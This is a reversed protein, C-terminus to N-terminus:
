LWGAQRVAQAYTRSVPAEAGSKLKLVLKGDAKSIDALGQRAVWWSRHTQLGDLAGIERIADSLRMLILTEGLSTHVRLYHDEASVAYIEGARFKIPLRDLFSAPPAGPTAASGKKAFARQALLRLAGGAITVVLVFFGLVPADEWPHPRRMLVDEALLVIPLIVAAQAISLVPLYVWVPWKPWRVQIAWGLIEGAVGGWVIMLVWYLAAQAFPVDTVSAFPNLVAMFLGFAAYVAIVRAWAAWSTGPWNTM